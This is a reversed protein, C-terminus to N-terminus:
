QARFDGMIMIDDRRKIARLTENLQGYFKEKEEEDAVETPAYCQVITVPRM